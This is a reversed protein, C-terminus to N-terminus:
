LHCTARTETPRLPRQFFDFLLHNLINRKLIKSGSNKLIKTVLTEKLYAGLLQFQSKCIDSSNVHSLKLKFGVRQVDYAAPKTVPLFLKYPLEIAPDPNEADFLSVCM